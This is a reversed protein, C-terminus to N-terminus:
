SHTSVNWSEPHLQCFYVIGYNNMNEEVFVDELCHNHYKGRTLEEQAVTNAVSINATFRFDQYSTQFIYSAEFYICFHKM